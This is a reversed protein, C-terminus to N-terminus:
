VSAANGLLRAHWSDKAPREWLGSRVDGLREVLLDFVITHPDGSEHFENRSIAHVRGDSGVEVHHGLSGMDQLDYFTSDLAVAGAALGVPNVVAARAALPASRPGNPDLVLRGAINPGTRAFAPATSLLLLLPPLDRLHLRM